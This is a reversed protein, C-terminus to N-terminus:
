PEAAPAPTPADARLADTIESDERVAVDRFGRLEPNGTSPNTFFIQLSRKTGPHPWLGAGIRRWEADIRAFATMSSHNGDHVPPDMIDVAQLPEIGFSKSELQLRVARASWNVTHYSGRPFARISDDLVMADIKGPRRASPLFLVIASRVGEPITMSALPKAPAAQAPAGPEPNARTVHISGGYVDLVVAEHNLYNKVPSRTAPHDKPAAPDRLSVEGQLVQADMALLRLAVRRAPMPPKDQASVPLVLCFIACLFLLRGPM